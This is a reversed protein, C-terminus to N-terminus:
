DGTESPAVTDYSYVKWKDDVADLTVYVRLPDGDDYKVLAVLSSISEPSIKYDGSYTGDQLNDVDITEMRKYLGTTVLPKVKSMWEEQDRGEEYTVLEAFEDVVPGWNKEQEKIYATNDEEPPDTRSGDAPPETTRYPDYAEDDPVQDPDTLLEGSRWPEPERTEESSTSSGQGSAENASLSKWGLSLAAGLAGALIIILALIVRTKNTIGSSKTM